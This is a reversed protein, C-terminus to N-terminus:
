LGAPRPSASRAASGSHIFSHAAAGKRGPGGCMSRQGGDDARDLACKDDPKVLEERIGGTEQRGRQLPVEVFVEM